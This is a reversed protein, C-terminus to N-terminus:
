EVRALSECSGRDSVMTFTLPGQRLLTVGEPALPFLYVSRGPPSAPDLAPSTVGAEQPAEVMLDRQEAGAEYATEVRLVPQEGGGTLRASLFRHPCTAGEDQRRPVQALTRLLQERDPRRVPMDMDLSLEAEVPMCIDKCVGYAVALNLSVPRAPDEPIIEIPLIVREKYGVSSGQGDAFRVPAPWLVRAQKLNLSEDWSFSPAIGEGPARWYTKWGPEMTIEIGAMPRAEGAGDAPGATFLRIRTHPAEYAPPLAGTAGAQGGGSALCGLLALALRSRSVGPLRCANFRHM